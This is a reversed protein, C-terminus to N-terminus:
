KSGVCVQRLLMLWSPVTLLYPIWDLVLGLIMHQQATWMILVSTMHWRSTNHKYRHQPMPMGVMHQLPTAAWTVTTHTALISFKSSKDNLL